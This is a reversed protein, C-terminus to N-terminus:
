ETCHHAQTFHHSNTLDPEKTADVNMHIATWQANYSSVEKVTALLNKVQESSSISRHRTGSLSNKVAM